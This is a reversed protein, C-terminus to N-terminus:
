KYESYSGVIIGSYSKFGLEILFGKQVITFMSIGPAWFFNGLRSAAFFIKKVKKPTRPCAGRSFKKFLSDLLNALFANGLIKAQFVLYFYTLM